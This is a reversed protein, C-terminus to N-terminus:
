IAATMQCGGFWSLMSAITRISTRFVRSRHTGLTPTILAFCIATTIFSIYATMSGECNLNKRAMLRRGTALLREQVKRTPGSTIPAEYQCATFALVNLCIAAALGRLWASNSSSM